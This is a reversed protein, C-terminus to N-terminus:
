TENEIEESMQARRTCMWECNGGLYTCLIYIKLAKLLLGVCVFAIRRKERSRPDWKIRKINDTGAFESKVIKREWEWGKWKESRM